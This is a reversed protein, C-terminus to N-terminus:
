PSVQPGCHEHEAAFKEMVQMAEDLSMPPVILVALGPHYACTMKYEGTAANEIRVHDSLDNEPDDQQDSNM